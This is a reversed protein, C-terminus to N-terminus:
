LKFELCLGRRSISIIQRADRMFEATTQEYSKKQTELLIKTLPVFAVPLYLSCLSVIQPSSIFLDYNM